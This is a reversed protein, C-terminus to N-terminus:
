IQKESRRIHARIEEEHEQFYAYADKMFDGIPCSRYMGELTETVLTGGAKMDFFYSYICGGQEREFYPNIASLRPDSMVSEVAAESLIWKLSPSEYEEYGDRFTRNWVYFWVFHIIEHIAEGIAGEPSNRYFIDFAHERLFRPEVPNLSVRGRMDNFLAGCDCSFAESLAATIQAECAQWRKTYALAKENLLEERERYIKGLIEAFYRKKEASSLGEAHKRDLEPYFHYLPESWYPTTDEKQFEMIQGLMYAFGPNEFVLKM